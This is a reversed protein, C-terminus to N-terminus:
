FSASGLVAGCAITCSVWGSFGCSFLTFPAMMVYSKAPLVAFRFGPSEPSVTSIVSVVAGTHQKGFAGVRRTWRSVM